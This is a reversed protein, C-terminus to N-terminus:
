DEFIRTLKNFSQNEESFVLTCKTITPSYLVKFGCIEDFEYDNWLVFVEDPTINKGSELQANRLAETFKEIQKNM